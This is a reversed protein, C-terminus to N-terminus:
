ESACRAMIDKGLKEILAAFDLVAEKHIILRQGISYQIDQSRKVYDADVIRQQHALLHRQQFYITLWSMAEKGLITKYSVDLQAEWLGSGEDLRQFANRKASRGTRREYLQESLRQFSMVSDQMAKELFVQELVQAEDPEFSKRLEDGVGATIRISKLTQVFTHSASNQGCSPCFYAAGVSSYRCKCEECTTKLKMPDAAKLPLLVTHRGGKLNLTISFFSNRNARRKSVAEDARIAANFKNMVHNQAYEKAAKMQETTLWADAKEAHRCSPCFIEEDRLINKYDEEVVKFQFLCKESPCEKDLFGDADAEIPVTIEKTKQYTVYNVNCTNLCTKDKSDNRDIDSAPAQVLRGKSVVNASLNEFAPNCDPGVQTPKDPSTM